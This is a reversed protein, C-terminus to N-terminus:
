SPAVASAASVRARMAAGRGIVAFASPAPSPTGGGGQRETRIDQGASRIVLQAHETATALKLGLRTDRARAM